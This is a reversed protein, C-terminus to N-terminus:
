KMEEQKEIRKLEEKHKYYDLLFSKFHRFFFEFISGTVIIIVAIVIYNKDVLKIFQEFTNM